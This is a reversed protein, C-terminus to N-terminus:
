FTAGAVASREGGRRQPFLACKRRGRSSRVSPARHLRISSHTPSQTHMVHSLSKKIDPKQMLASKRFKPRTVTQRRLLTRTPPTGRRRRERTISSQSVIWGKEIKILHFRAQPSAKCEEVHLQTWINKLRHFLNVRFSTSHCVLSWFNVIQGFGELDFVM